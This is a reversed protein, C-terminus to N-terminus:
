FTFDTASISTVGVLSITPGHTFQITVGTADTTITADTQLTTYSGLHLASVDITDTGHAFNSVTATGTGWGVKLVDTGTSLTANTTGHGVM